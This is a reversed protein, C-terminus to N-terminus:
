KLSRAIPVIVLIRFGKKNEAVMNNTLYSHSTHVISVVERGSQEYAPLALVCTRILINQGENLM